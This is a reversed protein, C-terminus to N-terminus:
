SSASEVQKGKKERAEQKQRKWHLYAVSHTPRHVPVVDVPPSAYWVIRNDATHHFRSVVSEPLEPVKSAPVHQQAAAAAAAAQAAMSPHPQSPVAPPHHLMSAVVSPHVSPSPFPQQSPMMPHASHQAYPSMSPVVGHQSGQYANYGVNQPTTPTM